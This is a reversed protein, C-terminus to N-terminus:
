WYIWYNWKKGYSIKGELYLKQKYKRTERIDKAHEEGFKQYKRWNEKTYQKRREAIQPNVTVQIVSRSVGFQRALPRTGCIGTAYIRRIEEKQEESLKRRRDLMTGEIKIKESKYPM